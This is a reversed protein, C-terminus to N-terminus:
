GVEGKPIVQLISNEIRIRDNSNIVDMDINLLKSINQCIRLAFNQEKEIEGITKNSRIRNKDKTRRKQIEEPSGTLFIIKIPELGAIIEKPIPILEKEIEVIIHGDFIILKYEGKKINNKFEELILNQNFSVEEHHDLIVENKYPSTKELGEALLDSGKLHIFGERTTVFNKIFDSKGVGSIGTLFIVLSM